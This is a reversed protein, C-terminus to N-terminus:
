RISSGIASGPQAVRATRLHVYSIWLTQSEAETVASSLRRATVLFKPYGIRDSRVRGLHLRERHSQRSELNLCCTEAVCRRADWGRLAYRTMAVCRLPFLGTRLRYQLNMSDSILPEIVYFREGTGFADSRLM